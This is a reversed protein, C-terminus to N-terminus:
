SPIYGDVWTSKAKEGLSYGKASCYYYIVTTPTPELLRFASEHGLNTPKTSLKCSSQSTRCEDSSSECDGQWEWLVTLTTRTNYIITEKGEGV